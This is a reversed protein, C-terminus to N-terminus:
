SFASDDHYVDHHLYSSTVIVEFLVIQYYMDSLTSCIINTHVNSIIKFVVFLLKFVNIVEKESNLYRLRLKIINDEYM